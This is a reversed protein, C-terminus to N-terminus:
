VPEYYRILCQFDRKERFDNTMLEYVARIQPPPADGHYGGFQIASIEHGGGPLRLRLKLHKEKLVQWSCVEFHNDFLPVPFGQGWPGAMRIAEAQERSLDNEDLSGDTWLVENLADTGLWQTALAQLADTFRQLNGVPLTLGAAMAHGGFREILGPQQADIHALADRMHFGAISRCSGRLSSSGPESPAFVATPRHCQEKIKSALLGIIGPHWDSQHLVMALPMDKLTSRLNDLASEAEELMDSQLGQREQNIAQLSEAMSRAAKFDDTLLCEIGLAMDELRGAANIKPAIRFGIDTEDIRGLTLGSIEVLAKVGSQCRGANIRSLGARILRRNNADLKVMDAITGIAVLDLLGSLDAEAGPLSEVRLAQRVALLLYFVVGVGAMAKSEFLCGPQNPNLIADADPLHEGPLHHDTVLVRYGLEKAREVGPICAIGSDVTIVIDPKFEALENVLPPTLGYGHLVRHPVKFFVQEAGLLRLGRVAVAVGTAGDCDFDGVVVIRQQKVIADSLLAVAQPLNKMNDPPLLHRLSLDAQTADEIGRAAYLRNILASRSSESRDSAQQWTRQRITKQM